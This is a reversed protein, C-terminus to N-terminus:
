RSLGTVTEIKGDLMRVVRPTRESLAGDHTVVMVTTGERNVEELLEIIEAGAQTDLNGTPEDALLLRPSMALARAIAVRQQQGGSLEAPRHSLRDALGVRELLDQARQRRRKPKWRAFRLPTAVNELATSRPLLHFRQFVFGIGQNRVHAMETRNLRSVDRGEFHYTGSTPSDLCGLIHMLTSKGSGSPGLISVYEGAEVTLDTDVLARVVAGATSYERTIAHMEIM